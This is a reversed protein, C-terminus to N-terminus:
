KGKVMREVPSPHRELRRNRSVQRFEYAATDMLDKMRFIGGSVSVSRLDWLVPRRLIRGRVSFGDANGGSEGDSDTDCDTDSDGDSDTDCDCASGPM